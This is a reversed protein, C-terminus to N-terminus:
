SAGESFDKAMQKADELSEAVWHGKGTNIVQTYYEDDDKTILSGDDREGVIMAQRHRIEISKDLKIVDEKAHWVYGDEDVKTILEYLEDVTKPTYAYDGKSVESGIGFGYIARRSFGYWKQEEVNFGISCVSHGPEHKQLQTLSYKECLMKAVDEGGLWDGSFTSYCNVILLESEGGHEKGNIIEKRYLYEGRNEEEIVRVCKYPCNCEM